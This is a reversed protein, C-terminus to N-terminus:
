VDISAMARNASLPVVAEGAAVFVPVLLDLVTPFSRATVAPACNLFSISGFLFALLM